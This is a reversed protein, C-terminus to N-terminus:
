LGVERADVRDPHMNINHGPFIEGMAACQLRAAAPRVAPPVFVGGAPKKGAAPTLHFRLNATM